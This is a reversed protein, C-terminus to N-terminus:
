SGRPKLVISRVGLEDLGKRIRGLIDQGTTSAWYDRDLIEPLDCGLLNCLSSRVGGIVIEKEKKACGGPIVWCVRIIQEAPRALGDSLAMVADVAGQYQKLHELM